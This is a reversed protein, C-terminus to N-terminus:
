LRGKVQAAPGFDEIVGVEGFNDAANLRITMSLDNHTRRRGGAVTSILEFDSGQEPLEDSLSASGRFARNGRGVSDASRIDGPSGRLAKAM